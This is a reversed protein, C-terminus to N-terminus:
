AATEAGSVGGHDLLARVDDDTLQPFDEYFQGVARFDRPTMLSVFEDAQSNLLMSTSLPAVGTAVIVRAPSLQRLAAIAVRMTAGTAIGDDVLIVIRNRVEIPPREGRYAKERRVMESRENQVVKEIAENRIHFAEVVDLDIFKAGRMAIAGMALEEFGPVGLKRVVFIDLPANLVKAIEHAVPVGGRPLALVVVDRRGAYASLKEGLLRGAQERDRLSEM